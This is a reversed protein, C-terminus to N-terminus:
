RAAKATARNQCHLPKRGGRKAKPLLPKLDNLYIHRDAHAMFIESQVVLTQLLAFSQGYLGDMGIWDLHLRQSLNAAQSLYWRTGSRLGVSAVALPVL